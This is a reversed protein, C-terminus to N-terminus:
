YVVQLNPLLPMSMWIIIGDVSVYAQHYVISHMSTKM